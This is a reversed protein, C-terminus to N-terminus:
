FELEVLIPLHDSGLHPGTRFSTVRLPGKVLCQDIPPGVMGQCAVGVIPIQSPFVGYGRRANQMGSRRIMEKYFVSWMDVNLDGMVVLPGALPGVEDGLGQLLHQNRLRFDQEGFYMPPYTHCAIFTDPAQALRLTM